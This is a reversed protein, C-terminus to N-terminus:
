FCDKASQVCESGANQQLNRRFSLLVKRVEDKKLDMPEYSGNDQRKLLKDRLVTALVRNRINYAANFDATERAAKAFAIFIAYM